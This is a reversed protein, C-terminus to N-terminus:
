ANLQALDDVDHGTARLLRRDPVHRATRQGVLANVKPHVRLRRLARRTPRTSLILRLSLSVVFRGCEDDGDDTEQSNAQPGHHGRMEHCWGTVIPRPRPPGVSFSQENNGSAKRQPQPLDNLM